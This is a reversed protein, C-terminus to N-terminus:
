KLVGFNEWNEFFFFIAITGEPLVNGGNDWECWNIEGLMVNHWLEGKNIILGEYSVWM